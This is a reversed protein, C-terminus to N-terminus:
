LKADSQIAVAVDNTKKISWQEHIAHTTSKKNKLFRVIEDLLSETITCPMRCEILWKVLVRNRLYPHLPLLQKIILGPPACNADQISEFIYSTVNDLIEEANNLSSVTRLFNQDFRPDSSQLAPIVTHRIRNRLYKDNSNSPDSVYAIAQEHLYELIEDKTIELLPRIYLGHRPQMGILGTLTTGRIMRLLFTEQQDHLHHGLAVAHADYQQAAQEFFARRLKRGLDEQSGQWPVPALASATTHVFTINLTSCLARCFAVDHASGTRWQHDLHAAILTLQRQERLSSLVHLLFVSDPGGSLGVVITSSQPVLEHRDIFDIVRRLLPSDVTYAHRKTLARPSRKVTHNLNM